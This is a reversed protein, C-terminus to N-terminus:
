IPKSDEQWKAFNFWTHREYKQVFAPTEDHYKFYAKLQEAESAPLNFSYLKWEEFTSKSAMEQIFDFAAREREKMANYWPTPKLFPNPQANVLIILLLLLRM